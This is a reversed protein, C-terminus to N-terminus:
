PKCDTAIQIWFCSTQSATGRSGAAISTVHRDALTRPLQAVIGDPSLARQPRGPVNTESLVAGSDRLEEMFRSPAQGDEAGAELVATVVVKDKARTLAVYFLRREALLAESTTAPLLEENRGIRDAQLLTQRMRLDPWVDEQVGVVFVLPWELGKARHATLLRVTNSRVQNDALAEAPIEQAM